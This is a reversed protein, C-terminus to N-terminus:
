FPIRFKKILHKTENDFHLVMNDRLFWEGGRYVFEIVKEQNRSEDVLDFRSETPRGMFAFADWLDSSSDMKTDFRRVKRDFQIWKVLYFSMSLVLVLVWAACCLCIRKKGGGPKEEKKMVM